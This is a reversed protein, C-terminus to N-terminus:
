KNLFEILLNKKLNYKFSQVTSKSKLSEDLDNWLTSARYIFSKQATSTKYLPKHLQNSQRTDRCSIDSRMIFRQCLYEPARNKMCKYTMVCDRLYLIKEVPLWKLQKLVPTIHDYKRTGTLLRAAFNQVTQLKSINKHSTASWVSSCYFLKSLVCSQIIMELTRPAFLNKIRSIQHLKKMCSSVLDQIHEDFSLTSDMILGLDKASQVPQIAKGLFLFKTHEPIKKLMQATGFFMIKTKGPNAHLFVIAAYIHLSPPFTRM